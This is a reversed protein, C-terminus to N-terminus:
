FPKEYEIIGIMLNLNLVDIVHGIMNHRLDVRYKNYLLTNSIQGGKKRYCKITNCELIDFM